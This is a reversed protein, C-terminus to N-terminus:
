SQIFRYLAVNYVMKPPIKPKGVIKPNLNSLIPTFPGLFISVEKLIVVYPSNYM